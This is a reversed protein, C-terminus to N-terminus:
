RSQVEASTKLPYGPLFSGERYQAKAGISRGVRGIVVGDNSRDKFEFESSSDIKAGSLRIALKDIMRDLALSGSM